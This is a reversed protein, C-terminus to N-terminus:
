QGTRAAPREGMARAVTRGADSWWGVMAKGDGLWRGIMAWGGGRDGGSWRAARGDGSWRGVRDRLKHTM